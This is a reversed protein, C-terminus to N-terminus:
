IEFYRDELMACLCHYIPLHLEQVKYTETEPVTIMVDALQALVGGTGGSLGVVKVGLARAVKAAATVNKANGSTSICLLVDGRSALGLVQQAYVFEPNVDNSFASIVATNECLTIAPLAAQLSNLLEDEIASYKGKMAAKRKFTLPRRKMFGKMLEGVIHSCDCASGGNGCLLLKGGEDFCQVLVKEAKQISDASDALTPYKETLVTIRSMKM